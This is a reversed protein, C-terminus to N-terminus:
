ARREAILQANEYRLRENEALLEVIRAEAAGLERLKVEAAELQRTHEALRSRLDDADARLAAVLDLASQTVGAGAEALIQAPEAKARRRSAWAAVAAAGVGSGVVGILAIFADLDM